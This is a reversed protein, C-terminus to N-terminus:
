RNKKVETAATKATNSIEDAAIKANHKVSDISEDALSKLRQGSKKAEAGIHELSDSTQSKIDRAKRKLGAQTEKGSKPALLIGAAFGAIIAFLTTGVKGM